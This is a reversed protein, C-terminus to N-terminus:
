RCTRMKQNAGVFPVGDKVDEFQLLVRKGILPGEVEAVSNNAIHSFLSMVSLHLPLSSYYVSGQLVVTHINM